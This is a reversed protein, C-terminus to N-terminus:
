HTGAEVSDLIKDLVESCKDVVEQPILPVSILGIPDSNTTTDMDARSFGEFRQEIEKLSKLFAETEEEAQILLEKIILIIRLHFPSIGKEIANEISELPKRIKSQYFQDMRSIIAKITGNVYSGDVLSNLFRARHTDDKEATSEAEEFIDGFKEYWVLSQELCRGARLIRKDYVELDSLSLRLIEPTIPVIHEVQQKWFDSWAPLKDIVIKL